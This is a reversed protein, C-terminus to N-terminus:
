RLHTFELAYRQDSGICITQGGVLICKVPPPLRGTCTGPQGANGLEALEGSGCEALTEASSSAAPSELVAALNWQRRRAMRSKGLPAESEGGTSCHGCTVLQM